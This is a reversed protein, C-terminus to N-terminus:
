KRINRQELHLQPIEMLKLAIRNEFKLDKYKFDTSFKYTKILKALVIKVFILAYRWGICSRQGKTFPIFSFSHRANVNSPLFNDPNFDNANDGWIDKCRHLRFLDICIIQGVPVTLGNSLTLDENSVKRFGMPVVPCVRLTENLVMELYILQDVQELTIDTDDDDPLINIVEEYAYQQYEPHMALMTVVLFLTSSTTEFSGAFLHLMQPLIESGALSNQHVGNLAYDLASNVEPMHSPDTTHNKELIDVSENVLRKFINLGQMQSKYISIEALKRIWGEINKLMVIPNFGTMELDRKLTTKTAM